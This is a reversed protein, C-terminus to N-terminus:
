MSTLNERPIALLDTMPPLQRGKVPILPLGQGSLGSKVTHTPTDTALDYERCFCVEYSHSDLFEVVNKPSSVRYLYKEFYEFYIAQIRRQKLLQEAGQLASLEYGEIDLKLLEIADLHKESVYTDLKICRVPSGGSDVIHSAGTQNTEVHFLVTGDRDCVAVPNVTARMAPYLTLSKQISGLLRLHPEFLHFQVDHSLKHALGFSLLGHNAGVDLFVGGGQLLADAIRFFDKEFDGDIVILRLFGDSLDAYGRAGDRIPVLQLPDEGTLWMWGVMLRHRRLFRPMKAFLTAATPVM